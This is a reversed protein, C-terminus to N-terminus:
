RHLFAPNMGSLGQDTRDVVLNGSVPSNVPSNAEHVTKEYSLIEGFKEGLQAGYVSRNSWDTRQVGKSFM